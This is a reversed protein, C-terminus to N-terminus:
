KSTKKARLTDYILRTPDDSVDAHNAPLKASLKRAITRDDGRMGVANELAWEKFEAYPRHRSKAGMMGAMSLMKKRENENSNPSGVVIGMAMGKMSCVSMLSKIASLDGEYELRSDFFATTLLAYAMSLARIAHRPIHPASNCLKEFSQTAEAAQQNFESGASEYMVVGFGSLGHQRFIQDPIRWIDHIIHHLEELEKKALAELENKMKRSGTAGWYFVLAAPDPHGPEVM